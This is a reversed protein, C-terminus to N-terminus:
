IVFFHMKEGFLRNALTHQLLAKIEINYCINKEINEKEKFNMFNWNTKRTSFDYELGSMCVTQDINRNAAEQTNGM